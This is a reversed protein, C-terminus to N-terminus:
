GPASADHRSNVPTAVRLGAPVGASAPDFQGAKLQYDPFGRLGAILINTGLLYRM